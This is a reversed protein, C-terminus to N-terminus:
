RRTLEAQQQHELRRDEAAEEDVIQRQKAAAREHARDGATGAKRQRLEDLAGARGYVVVTDNARIPTTGTPAGVYRGDSHRVGLVVVGERALPLDRILRGELWDGAHIRIDAISYDASIHLLRVYDRVDLRTWRALGREILRSLHCGSTGVFSLLLSALATVVGAGSLLMLTLVIHRRAPHSVIDESEATTFGVGSFASRAQFQATDQSLGTARLAVTAIRTVLLAVTVIVLLSAVAIM